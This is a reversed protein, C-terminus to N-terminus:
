SLQCALRWGHKRIWALRGYYSASAQQLLGKLQGPTLHDLTMVPNYETFEEWDTAHIRAKVQGHLVTGPYPTLLTFQAAFSNLRHSFRITERISAETDDPFGLIYFASVAMGQGECERVIELCEEGVPSRRGAARAIQRSPSEIGLNILQCGARAMLAILQPDLSDTRTECGWSLRVGRRLIEEMLAVTAERRATFCRDRFLVSRVGHRQILHELEDVVAGPDRVMYLAPVATYACYGCDYLCGRSATLPLFPRRPLLPRYGYSQVPFPAWHPRPLSVPSTGPSPRLIGVWDGGAKLAADLALDPEGQLVFDAHALFLEPKASALAGAFGVRRSPMRAKIRAAAALEARHRVTSSALIVLEEAQIDEGRYYHVTVDAQHLLGSLAGLYVLPVNILRGKVRSLLAGAFGGAEMFSGFTGATERYAQGGRGEELEILAASKISAANFAAHAQPNSAM